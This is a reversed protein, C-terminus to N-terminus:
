NNWKRIPSVSYMRGICNFKCQRKEWRSIQKRDLIVKKFVYYLPIDTYIYQRADIDRKNLEFYDMLMTIRELVSQLNQENLHNSIIVNQENPLHVPLRIIAHSKKQLTKNVIRWYAEVSGVYRAEIFDKIEDHVIEINNVDEEIIVSATDHGKYIYKYLYKVSKISSVIEVNIHCNFITLLIPCYPVVFRNDVVFGESKEYSINTDRRRYQPYGNEDMTTEEHFSKPFHKSCKGNVVCWDGCPGHIMNKM